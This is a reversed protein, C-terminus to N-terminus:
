KHKHVLRQSFLVFLHAREPKWVLGLEVCERLVGLHTRTFFVGLPVGSSHSMSYDSKDTEISPTTNQTRLVTGLSRSVSCYKM